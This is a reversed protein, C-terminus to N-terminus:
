SDALQYFCLQLKWKSKLKMHATNPQKLEKDSCSKTKNSFNVDQPAATPLLLAVVVKEKLFILGLCFIVRDECYYCNYVLPMCFLLIPPM